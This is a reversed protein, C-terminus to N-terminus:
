KRAPEFSFVLDYLQGGMGEAVGVEKLMCVKITDCTMPIHYNSEVSRGMGELVVLDVQRRNVAEVLAPSVKSLDILPAGNGSSVLELRGDALADGIVKDWQAIGAVLRELDHITVDNLSPLENATLIVQTGRSLLFRTFPIMGLVIDCGANDVFIVAANHPKGTNLRQTWADLGDVLWPRPRLRARVDSFVVTRGNEFLAQTSTAGVDFINGAFMGQALLLPLQSPDANDLEELLAPLFRLATVNEREKLMRYTDYFGQGRLYSERHLCLTMMNWPGFDRPRALYLDLQENMQKTCIAARAHVEQEDEGRDIAERISEALLTPFHNRFMPVWHNRYHDDVSLDWRCSTYTEPSALLPFVATPQRMPDISLDCFSSSTM